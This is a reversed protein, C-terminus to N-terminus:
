SLTRKKNNQTSTHRQPPTSAAQRSALCLAACSSPIDPVVAVFIAKSSATMGFAERFPTQHLKEKADLSTQQPSFIPTNYATKIINPRTEIKSLRYEAQVIDLSPTAHFFCHM